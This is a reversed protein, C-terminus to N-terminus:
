SVIFNDHHALRDGSVDTVATDVGPSPRTYGAGGYVPLVVKETLVVDTSGAGFGVRVPHPPLPAGQGQTAQGDEVAGGAGSPAGAGAGTGTVPNSGGTPANSGTSAGNGAPSTTVTASIAPGSTVTSPGGAAEGTADPMPADHISRPKLLQPVPTPKRVAVHPLASALLAHRHAHLERMSRSYLTTIGELKPNLEQLLRRDFWFLCKCIEICVNVVDQFRVALSSKNELLWMSYGKQVDAICMSFDRLGDLRVKPAEPVSDNVDGVNGLALEVQKAARELMMRSLSPGRGHVGSHSSGSSVGTEGSVGGQQGGGGAGQSGGGVGNGNSGPEAGGALGAGGECNMSAPLSGTPSVGSLSTAADQADGDGLKSSGVDGGRENIKHILHQLASALSAMHSDETPHENHGHHSHGSGHMGFLAGYYGYHLPHTRLSKLMKTVEAECSPNQLLLLDWLGYIADTVYTIMDFLVTRCRDYTAKRCEEKNFLMSLNRCRTALDRELEDGPHKGAMGSFVRRMFTDYERRLEVLRAALAELRTLEVQAEDLEQALAHAEQVLPHTELQSQALALATPSRSRHHQSPSSPTAKASSSALMRPSKPSEGATAKRTSMSVARNRLKRLALSIPSGPSPSSGPSGAGQGYGDSPLQVHLHPTPGQSTPSPPDGLRGSLLLSPDLSKMTELRPSLALDSAKWSALPSALEPSTGGPSADSNNSVRRVKIPISLSPSNVPSAAAGVENAGPSRPDVAVPEEITLLPKESLEGHTFVRSHRRRVLLTSPTSVANPRVRPSAPQTSLPSHTENAVSDSLTAYHNSLKGHLGLARTVTEARSRAFALRLTLSQVRAKQLERRGNVHDDAELETLEACLKVFTELDESRVPAALSRPSVVPSAM